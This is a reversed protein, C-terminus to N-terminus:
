KIALVRHINTGKYKIKLCVQVWIVQDYHEKSFKAKFKLFGM